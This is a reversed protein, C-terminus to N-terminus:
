KATITAAATLEARAGNVTESRRSEAGSATGPIITVPLMTPAVEASTQTQRRTRATLSRSRGPAALMLALAAVKMATPQVNRTTAPVCEYRSLLSAKQPRSGNTRAPHVGASTTATQARTIERDM